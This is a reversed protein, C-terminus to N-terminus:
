CVFDMQWLSIITHKKQMRVSSKVIKTDSQIEDM